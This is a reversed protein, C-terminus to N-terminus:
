YRRAPDQAVMNVRLKGGSDYTQLSRAAQIIARVQDLASQAGEQAAEALMRLEAIQPEVRAREVESLPAGGVRDTFLAINKLANDPDGDIIAARAANLPRDYPAAM